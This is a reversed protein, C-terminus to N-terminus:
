SSQSDGRNISGPQFLFPTATDSLHIPQLLVLIAQTVMLGFHVSTYYRASGKYRRLECKKRKKEEDNEPYKVTLLFEEHLQLINVSLIKSPVVVMTVAAAAASNGEEVAVAVAVAAAVVVAVVVVM